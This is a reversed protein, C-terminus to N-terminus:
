KGPKRFQSIPATAATASGPTLANAAKATELEGFLIRSIAAIGYHISAFDTDLALLHEAKELMSQPGHADLIKRMWAQDVQTLDGMGLHMKYADLLVQALTDTLEGVAYACLLTELLTLIEKKEKRTLLDYVEVMRDLRLHTRVADEQVRGTMKAVQELLVMADRVHGRTYTAIIKLARDEHEVAERECVQKLRPYIEEARLLRLNLEVCRSRITPLMREPDTTCFVYMTNEQGKELTQLLANQGQDSIMHSEDYVVIRTKGGMARYAADGIKGRIDAVLGHSASDIEEYAPHNDKDMALCSECKGCPEVDARQDCLIARGLLRAMTTKGTGYPGTLMLAAPKWGKKLITKLVAVESTQGVVEEFTKPRHLNYLMM